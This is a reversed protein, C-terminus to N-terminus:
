IYTRPKRKRKKKLTMWVFILIIWICMRLKYFQTFSIMNQAMWILSKCIIQSELFLSTMVLSIFPCGRIPVGSCISLCLLNDQEELQVKGYWVRCKFLTNSHECRRFNTGRSSSWSKGVSYSVEEGAIQYHFLDM